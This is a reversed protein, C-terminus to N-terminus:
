EIVSTISEYYTIIDKLATVFRDSINYERYSEGSLRLRINTGNLFQRLEKIKEAETHIGMLYASFPVDVRERVHNGSIVTRNIDSTNFNYQINGGQDNILIARNFFIWRSGNFTARLRLSNGDELIGIYLEIPSPATFGHGINLVVSQIFAINRFEDRDIRLDPWDPSVKEGLHAGTACSVLLSLIFFLIIRTNMRNIWMKKTTM